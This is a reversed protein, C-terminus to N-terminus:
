HLQFAVVLTFTFLASLSCSICWRALKLLFLVVKPTRAYILASGQHQEIGAPFVIPESPDYVPGFRVVATYQPPAWWTELRGTKRMGTRHM